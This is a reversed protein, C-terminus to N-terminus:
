RTLSIFSSLIFRVYLVDTLIDETSYSEQSNPKMRYVRRIPPDCTLSRCECECLSQEKMYEGQLTGWHWSGHQFLSCTTRQTYRQETVDSHITKSPVARSRAM